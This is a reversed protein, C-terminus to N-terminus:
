HSFQIEMRFELRAQGTHAFHFLLVLDYFLNTHGSTLSFLITSVPAVIWGSNFCGLHHLFYEGDQAQYHLTYLFNKFYVAFYLIIVLCFVFITKRERLFIHNELDQNLSIFSHHNSLMFGTVIKM